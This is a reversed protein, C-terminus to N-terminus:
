AWGVGAEATRDNMSCELWADEDDELSDCDSATLAADNANPEDPPPNAMADVPDPLPPTPPDPKIPPLPKTYDAGRATAMSQGECGDGYSGTPNGDKDEFCYRTGKLPVGLTIDPGFDSLGITARDQDDPSDPDSHLSNVADDLENLMTVRARSTRLRAKRLLKNAVTDGNWMMGADELAQARQLLNGGQSELTTIQADSTQKGSSGTLAVLVVLMMAAAGVASVFAWRRSAGPLSPSHPVVLEQM